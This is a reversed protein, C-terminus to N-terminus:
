QKNTLSDRLNQGPLNVITELQDEPEPLTSMYVHLNQRSYGEKDFRRRHVAVTNVPLRILYESGEVTAYVNKMRQDYFVAQLELVPGFLKTYIKIRM